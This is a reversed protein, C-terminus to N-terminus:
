TACTSYWKAYDLLVISVGSAYICQAIHTFIGFFDMQIFADSGLRPDIKSPVAVEGFAQEFFVLPNDDNALRSACNKSLIEKHRGLGHQLINLM